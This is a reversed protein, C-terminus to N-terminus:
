RRGNLRHIQIKRSLTNRHIGMMRAARTQNGNAKSLATQIYQKEFEDRAQEFLIGGDVMEAVLAELQQKM